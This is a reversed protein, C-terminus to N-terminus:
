ASSLEPRKGTGTKREGECTAAERGGPRRIVSGAVCGGALVELAHALRRAEVLPTKRALRTGCLRLPSTLPDTHEVSAVVWPDNDADLFLSGPVYEQESVIGMEGGSPEEQGNLFIVRVKRPLVTVQWPQVRVEIDGSSACTSM